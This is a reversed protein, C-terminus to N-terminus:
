NINIKHSIYIRFLIFINKKVKRIFIKNQKFKNAFSCNVKSTLSNSIESLPFLIFPKLLPFITESLPNSICASM